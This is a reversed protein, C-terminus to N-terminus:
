SELSGVRIEQGLSGVDDRRCEDVLRGDDVGGCADSGVDGDTGADTDGSTDADFVRNHHLSRGELGMRTHEVRDHACVAVDAGPGTDVTSWLWFLVDLTLDADSHESSFDIECGLGEDAAADDKGVYTWGM